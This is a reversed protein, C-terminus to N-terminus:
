YLKKIAGVLGKQYSVRIQERKVKENIFSEVYSLPVDKMFEYQSVHKLFLSAYDCYSRITNSAYRHTILTKEFESVIRGSNM